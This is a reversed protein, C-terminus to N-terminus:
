KKACVPTYPMFLDNFYTGNRLVYEAAVCNSYPQPLVYARAFPNCQQAPEELFNARDCSLAPCSKSQACASFVYPAPKNKM